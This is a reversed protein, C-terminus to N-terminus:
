SVRLFLRASDIDVGSEVPDHRLQRCRVRNPDEVVMFVDFGDEFDLAAAHRAL